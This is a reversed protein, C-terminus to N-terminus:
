TEETAKVAEYLAIRHELPTGKLMDGVSMSTRNEAVGADTMLRDVTKQIAARPGAAILGDEVAVTIWVEDGVINRVERMDLLPYTVDSIRELPYHEKFVRM